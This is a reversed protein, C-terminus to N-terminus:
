TVTFPYKYNFKTTNDYLSVKHSSEITNNNLLAKNDFEVVNDHCMTTYAEHVVSM